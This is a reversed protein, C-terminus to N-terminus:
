IANFYIQVEEFGQLLLIRVQDNNRIACLITTCFLDIKFGRPYIYQTRTGIFPQQAPVSITKHQKRVRDGGMKITASNSKIGGFAIQFPLIVYRERFPKLRSM